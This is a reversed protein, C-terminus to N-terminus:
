RGSRVIQPFKTTIRVEAPLQDLGILHSIAVIESGQFIQIASM